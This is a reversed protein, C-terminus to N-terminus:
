VDPDDDNARTVSKSFIQEVMDLDEDSLNSLDVPLNAVSATISTRERWTPGGQTKLFFIAAATNGSMGQDFLSKGMKHIAVAKGRALQERYYKRLTKDDIGIIVAIGEHPTGYQALMEAQRMTDETPEHPRRSMTLGGETRM